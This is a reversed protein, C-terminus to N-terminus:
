IIDPSVYMHMMSSHQRQKWYWTSVQVLTKMKMSVKHVHLKSLQELESAGQLHTM